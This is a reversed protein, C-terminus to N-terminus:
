FALASRSGASVANVTLEWKAETDREECLRQKARAPPLLASNACTRSSPNCCNDLVCLITPLINCRHGKYNFCCCCSFVSFNFHLSLKLTIECTHKCDNLEYFMIKHCYPIPISHPSQFIVYEIYNIIGFYWYAFHYNIILILWNLLIYYNLYKYGM